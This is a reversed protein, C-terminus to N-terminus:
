SAQWTCSAEDTWPSLAGNWFNKNLTSLSVSSSAERYESGEFAGCRCGWVRQTRVAKAFSLLSDRLFVVQWCLLCKINEGCAFPM